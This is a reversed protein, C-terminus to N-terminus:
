EVVDDNELRDRMEDLISPCDLIRQLMRGQVLTKTEAPSLLTVLHRKEAWVTTMGTRKGANEFLSVFQNYEAEGRFLHRQENLVIAEM